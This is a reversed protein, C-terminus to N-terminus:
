KKGNINDAMAKAQKLTASFESEPMRQKCIDVFCQSVSTTKEPKARLKNIAQNVANFKIVLVSRQEPTMDGSVFLEHMRKAEERLEDLNTSFDDICGSQNTVLAATKNIPARSFLKDFM